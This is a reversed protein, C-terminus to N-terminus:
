AAAVCVQPENALATAEAQAEISRFTSMERRLVQATVQRKRLNLQSLGHQSPAKIKDQRREIEVSVKLTALTIVVRVLIVLFYLPSTKVLYKVISVGARRQLEKLDERLKTNQVEKILRETRVVIRSPTGALLQFIILRTFSITHAFRIIGNLTQRLQGYVPADFGIGHERRIAMDFLENRITFLDQRCKDLAYDRWLQWVVWLALLGISTQLYPLADPTM